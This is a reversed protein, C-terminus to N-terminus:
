ELIEELVKILKSEPLHDPFPDHSIVFGAVDSNVPVRVRCLVLMKRCIRPNIDFLTFVFAV